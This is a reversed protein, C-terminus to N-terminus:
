DEPKFIVEDPYLLGLNRAMDEVQSEQEKLSESLEMESDYQEKLSEEQEKLSSLTSQRRYLQAGIVACFVVVVVAAGLIMRRARARSRLVAGLRGSATSRYNSRGGRATQNTTKRDQNTNKRNERAGSVYEGHGPM